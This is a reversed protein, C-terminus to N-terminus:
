PKKNLHNTLRKITFMRKNLSPIVGGKNNIQNTWKQKENFTLGLLKASEDQTVLDKGIKVTIKEQNPLTGKRHNLIVLSTKKPNAILGNSAM